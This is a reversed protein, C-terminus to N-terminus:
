CEYDISCYLDLIHYIEYFLDGFLVLTTYYFYVSIYYIESIFWCFWLKQVFIGSTPLKKRRKVSVEEFLIHGFEFASLNLTHNQINWMSELRGAGGLKNECLDFVLFRVTSKM